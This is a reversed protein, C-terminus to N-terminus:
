TVSNNRDTKSWNSKLFAKNDNRWGGGWIPGGRRSERERARLEQPRSAGLIEWNKTELLKTLGRLNKGAETKLLYRICMREGDRRTALTGDMGRKGIKNKPSKM